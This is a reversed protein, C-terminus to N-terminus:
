SSERRQNSRSELHADLKSEIFSHLAEKRLVLFPGGVWKGVVEDREGADDSAQAASDNRYFHM